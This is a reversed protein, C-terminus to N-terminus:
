RNDVADQDDRKEDDQKSEQQAPHLPKEEAAKAETDKPTAPAASLEKIIIMRVDQKERENESRVKRM